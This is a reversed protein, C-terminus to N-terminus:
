KLRRRKEELLNSFDEFLQKGSEKYEGVSTLSAYRWVISYKDGVRHIIYAWAPVRTSTSVELNNGAGSSTTETKLQGRLVYRALIIDADGIGDVLYLRGYRDAHRSSWDGLWDRLNRRVGFDLGTAIFVRLSEAKPISPTDALELAVSDPLALQARLRTLEEDATQPVVAGYSLLLLLVYVVSRPVLTLLRRANDCM